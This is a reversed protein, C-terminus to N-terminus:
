TQELSIYIDANNDVGWWDLDHTDDQDVLALHDDPMQLRIRLSAQAARPIKFSKAVKMSFTRMSMTPLVRLAMAPGTTTTNPGKSLGDVCQRVNM